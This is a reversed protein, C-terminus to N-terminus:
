LLPLFFRENSDLLTKARKRSGRDSEADGPSVMAGFHASSPTSFTVHHQTELYIKRYRGVKKTTDIHWCAYIKHWHSKNHISYNGSPMDGNRTRRKWTLRFSVTLNIEIFHFVPQYPDTLSKNSHNFMGFYGKLSFFTKKPLKLAKWYAENEKIQASSSFTYSRKKRIALESLMIQPRRSSLKTM